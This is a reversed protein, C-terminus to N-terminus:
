LTIDDLSLWAVCDEGDLVTGYVLVSSRMGNVITPQNGHGPRYWGAAVWEGNEPLGDGYLKFYTSKEKM